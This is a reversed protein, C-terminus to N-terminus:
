ADIDNFWVIWPGIQLAVAMYGENTEDPTERYLIVLRWFSERDLFEQMPLETGDPRINPKLYKLLGMLDHEWMINGTQTNRIIFRYGNDAILRATNIQAVLLEEPKTGAALYYPKYVVEEQTLPANDHGYVAGEPTVIEFTFLPNGEPVNAKGDADALVIDFRNTNKVFGVPWVSLDSRNEVTISRSVWLPSFEHSVTNETRELAIRVEGLTTHYPSFANGDADKVSFDETLGGVTLIQYTGPPLENGIFMRKGDILEDRKARRTFLFKDESDFVYVDVAPIWPDFSDTYEMNHDYIFELYVGCDERNDKIKECSSWLASAVVVLPLIFLNRYITKIKM